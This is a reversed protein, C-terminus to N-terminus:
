FPQSPTISKKLRNHATLILQVREKGKNTIIYYRVRGKLSVELLGERELSYLLTYITGASLKVNFTKHIIKLIDYGSYPNNNVTNLIIIDLSKKVVIEEAEQVLSSRSVRKIKNM